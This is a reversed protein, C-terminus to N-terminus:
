APLDELSRPTSLLESLQYVLKNSALQSALAGQWDVQPLRAGGLEILCASLAAAVAEDPADVAILLRSLLSAPDQPPGAPMARREIWSLADYVEGVIEVRSAEVGFFRRAFDAASEPGRKPDAM